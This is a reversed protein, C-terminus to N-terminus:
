ERAGPTRDESQDRAARGTMAADLHLAFGGRQLGMVGSTGDETAEYVINFGLRGVYFAKATQLDDAPLNPIAREM